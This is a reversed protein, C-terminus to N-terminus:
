VLRLELEKGVAKAYRQLTTLSPFKGRALNSELRAVISQKSKMREAVECQTLGAEKRATLITALASVEAPSMGQKRREAFLQELSRKQATAM